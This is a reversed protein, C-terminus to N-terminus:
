HTKIIALLRRATERTITMTDQVRLKTQKDLISSPLSPQCGIYNNLGRISEKHVFHSIETASKMEQPLDKYMSHALKFLIVAPYHQSKSAVQVITDHLHEPVTYNTLYLFAASVLTPFEHRALISTEALEFCLNIANERLGAQELECLLRLLPLPYKPQVSPLVQKAEEYAGGRLLAIAAYVRLWAFQGIHTTAFYIAEDLRGLEILCRIRLEVAVGSSSELTQAIAECTDFDNVLWKLKATEISYIHQSSKWITGTSLSLATNPNLTSADILSCRELAKELGNLAILLKQQQIEARALRSLNVWPQVEYVRACSCTIESLKQLQQETIEWALDYFGQIYACVAVRNLATAIANLHDCDIQHNVKGEVPSIAQALTENIPVWFQTENPGTTQANLFAKVIDIM